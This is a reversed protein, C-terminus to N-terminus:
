TENLRMGTIEWLVSAIGALCTNHSPACPFLQHCLGQKRLALQVPVCSSCVWASCSLDNVVLVLSRQWGSESFTKSMEVRICAM